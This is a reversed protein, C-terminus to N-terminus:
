NVLTNKNLHLEHIIQLHAKDISCMSLFEILTPLSRHAGSFFSGERLRDVRAVTGKNASINLMPTSLRRNLVHQACCEIQLYNVALSAFLQM